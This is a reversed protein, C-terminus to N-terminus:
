TCASLARARASIGRLGHRCVLVVNSLPSRSCCSDHVRHLFGSSPWQSVPVTSAGADSSKIHYQTACLNHACGRRGSGESGICGLLANATNIASSRRFLHARANELQSSAQARTSSRWQRRAASQVVHFHQMGEASREDRVNLLLAQLLQRLM